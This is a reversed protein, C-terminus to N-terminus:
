NSHVLVFRDLIPKRALVSKQSSPLQPLESVISTLPDPDLLIPCVERLHSESFLHIFHCIHQQYCDECNMYVLTQEFPTRGKDIIAFNAKQLRNCNHSIYYLKYKDIGCKKYKKNLTEM